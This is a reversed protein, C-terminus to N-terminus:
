GALLVLSKVFTCFLVQASSCKLVQAAGGGRTSCNLQAPPPAPGMTAARLLSMRQRIMQFDYSSRLSLLGYRRWVKRPIGRCPTLIARDGIEADCVALGMRTTLIVDVLGHSRKLRHATRKAGAQRARWGAAPAQSGRQPRQRPRPRSVAARPTSPCSVGGAILAHRTGGARRAVAARGDAQDSRASARRLRGEAHLCVDVLSPRRRRRGLGPVSSSGPRGVDV